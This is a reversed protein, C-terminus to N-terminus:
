GPNLPLLHATENVSLVGRRGDSRVAVRSVSAYGPAFWLTPGTIGLVDAIYVNIVGAHSVVVLRRGPNAAALEAFAETVRKRFAPIDVEGYPEGRAIAEWAPHGTAKLEEVPTYETGHVDWEAIDAVVTPILGHRAAIPEATEMARRQPSTIIADVKGLLGSAALAQAQAVGLPSLHPNAHGDDVSTAVPLAHRM